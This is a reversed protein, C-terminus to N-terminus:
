VKLLAIALSAVTLLVGVVRWVTAPSVYPRQKLEDFEKPSISPKLELARLRNEHDAHDDKHEDRLHRLEIGLNDVKADLRITAVHIQELLGFRGAEYRPQGSVGDDQTPSM